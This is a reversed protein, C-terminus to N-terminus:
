NDLGRELGKKAGLDRGTVGQRWLRELGSAGRKGRSLCLGSREKGGEFRRGSRYSRYDFEWRQVSEVGERADNFSAYFAVTDKLLLLLSFEGAFIILL